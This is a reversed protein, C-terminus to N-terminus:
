LWAWRAEDLFGHSHIDVSGDDERQTDDLVIVKVKLPVDSRPVFSRM